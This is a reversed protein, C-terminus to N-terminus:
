RVVLLLGPVSRLEYCGIDVRQRARRPNGALDTGAMPTYNTGANVLVGSGTVESNTASPAYDRNAYDAFAASTITRCTGNPLVGVDLACYSLVNSAGVPGLAVGAANTVGAIVVNQITVSSSGVYLPYSGGFTGNTSTLASNVIDCNRLVADGRVGVLHCNASQTVREFLCNEVRASTGFLCNASRNSEWSVSAASSTGRLIRCHTVLGTAVYINAAQGNDRAYGDVIVCNTVIGGNEVNINGGRRNYAEGKAITLGSLIAAANRLLFVRREQVAYSSGTTNSVMVRSPDADNGVIAVANSITFPTSVPYVGDGVRIVSGDTAIAVASEINSAATALSAYPEAANPNGKVVYIDAASAVGHAALAVLSLILKKM